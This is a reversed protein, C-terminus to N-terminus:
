GHANEENPTYIEGPGCAADGPGCPLESLEVEVQPTPSNDGHNAIYAIGAVLNATVLVALVPAVWWGSEREIMISTPEDDPPRAAPPVPDGAADKHWHHTTGPMATVKGDPTSTMLLVGRLVWHHRGSPHVTRARRDHRLVASGGPRSGRGPAGDTTGWSFTGSRPRVAFQFGHPEGHRDVVIDIVANPAIPHLDYDRDLAVAQGTTLAVDTSNGIRITIIDGASVYAMEGGDRIVNPQKVQTRKTM